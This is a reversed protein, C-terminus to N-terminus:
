ANRNGAAVKEEFDGKVQWDWATQRMREKMEVEAEGLSRGYDGAVGM